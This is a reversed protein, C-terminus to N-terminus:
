VLMCSVAIMHYKPNWAVASVPGDVAVDIDERNLAMATSVDWVHVIGDESGSM